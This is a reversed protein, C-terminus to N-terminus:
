RNKADVSRGRLTWILFFEVIQGQAVVPFLAQIGQTQLWNVVFRAVHSHCSMKAKHGSKLWCIVQRMIFRVLIECLERDCLSM